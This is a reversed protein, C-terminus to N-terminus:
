HTAIFVVTSQHAGRDQGELGFEVWPLDIGYLLKQASQLRMAKVKSTIYVLGQGGEAVPLYLVGPCLCHNRDWSFYAFCKQLSSLLEAPPNLVSLQHWLISAAVINVVLVRGRSSLQPRIWEWRQLRGLVKEPLGNWNRQM